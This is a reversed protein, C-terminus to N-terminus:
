RNRMMSREVSQPRATLQETQSRFPHHVVRRVRCRKCLSDTKTRYSVSPQNEDTEWYMSFWKVLNKVDEVRCPKMLFSRAGLQYVRQVDKLELLASLVIILTDKFQPQTLIWEMVQFRSMALEIERAKSHWRVSCQDFFM